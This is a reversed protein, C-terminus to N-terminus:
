ANQVCKSHAAPLHEPKFEYFGDEDYFFDDAQITQDAIVNALTTKGSGQVGTLAIKM